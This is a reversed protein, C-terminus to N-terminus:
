HTLVNTLGTLPQVPQTRQFQHPERYYFSSRHIQHAKKMTHNTSKTNLMASRHLYNENLTIRDRHHENDMCRILTHLANMVEDIDKRSLDFSAETSAHAAHTDFTSDSDTRRRYHRALDFISAHTLDATILSANSTWQRDEDRREVKKM